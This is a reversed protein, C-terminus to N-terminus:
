RQQQQLLSTHTAYFCLLFFFPFSIQSFSGLFSLLNSYVNVHICFGKHGAHLVYKHLYLEESYLIEGVREHLFLSFLVVCKWM